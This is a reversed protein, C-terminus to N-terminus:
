IISANGFREKLLNHYEEWSKKGVKGNRETWYWSFGNVLDPISKVDNFNRSHYYLLNEIMLKFDKAPVVKLIEEVPVKGGTILTHQVDEDLSVEIVSHPKIVYSYKLGNILKSLAELAEHAQNGMVDIKM